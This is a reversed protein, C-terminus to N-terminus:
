DRDTRARLASHIGTRQVSNLRKAALLAQRLPGEPGFLEAGLLAEVPHHRAAAAAVPGLLADLMESAYRINFQGDLAMCIRGLSGFAANVASFAREQEETGTACAPVLTAPESNM